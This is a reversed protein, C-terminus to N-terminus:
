SKHICATEILFSSKNFEEDVASEGKDSAARSNRERNETKTNRGIGGAAKKRLKMRHQKLKRLKLHHNSTQEFRAVKFAM